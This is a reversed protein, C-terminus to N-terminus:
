GKETRRSLLDSVEEVVEAETMSTTDIVVADDAAKLPALERTRDREDRRAIETKIEELSRDNETQAQRRRARAEPTATLYVKLDAGPLVKTGIDRGEVLVDHEGAAESIKDNVLDRIDDRRALKSAAEGIEESDLEAAITRGELVLLTDGDGKPKLSLTDRNLDHIEGYALARYLKGSRIFLLSFRNAVTRGVSTKGAGAPGDIAVQM